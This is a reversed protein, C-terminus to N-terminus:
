PLYRKIFLSWEEHDCTNHDASTCIGDADFVENYGGDSLLRYHGDEYNIQVILDGYSFDPDIAAPICMIFLRVRRFQVKSLDDLFPKIQEEPISYVPDCDKLLWHGKEGDRNVTLDYIEISSVKDADIKRSDYYVDTDFTFCGFFSSLAATVIVLLLLLCLFKRAKM